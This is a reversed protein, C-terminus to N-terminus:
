DALYDEWMACYDDHGDGIDVAEKDVNFGGTTFVVASPQGDVTENSRATESPLRM